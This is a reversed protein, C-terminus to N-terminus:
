DASPKEGGALVAAIAEKLEDVTFPKQLTRQAGLWGMVSLLLDVDFAGGGTMGIIRADPWRQRLAKTAGLGDTEPMVVDMLVLDPRTSGYRQVASSGDHAILAEHGLSRLMRVLVDSFERDDDVVLIVAM